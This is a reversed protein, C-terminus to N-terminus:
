ASSPMRSLTADRPSPSTYLLCFYMVEMLTRPIDRDKIGMFIWILCSISCITWGMWQSLVQANGLIYAGIVALIFGFWRWFNTKKLNNEIKKEGFKLNLLSVKGSVLNTKEPMIRMMLTTKQIDEIHLLGVM